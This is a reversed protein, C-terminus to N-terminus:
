VTDGVTEGVTDGVTEGVTDGVTEGVVLGVVDGLAEVVNAGTAFALVTTIVRSKSQVSISLVV